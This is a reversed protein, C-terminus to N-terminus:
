LSLMQDIVPKFAEFPQAGEILVAEGTENNLIINGPTGTVGANSGDAIDQAIHEDYKGSELCIEFAEKDLGIEVAFEPLSNADLGRGNSTTRSYILDAMAWFKEDGGQEAACESAIAERTALPDHFDLPFHRYVWNVDGDYADVIAQATPHFRKCFPCEFDSFEILSIKADRDGRIHDDSSVKQVNTAMASKAAQANQAAEQQAEQQKKIYNEIGQEISEPTVDTSGSNLQIGFFVISGSLVVSAFVIAATLGTNKQSM